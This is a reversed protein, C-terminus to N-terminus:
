RYEVLVRGLQGSACGKRSSAWLPSILVRQPLRFAMAIRWGSSAEGSQPELTSRMRSTIQRSPLSEALRSLAISSNTREPRSGTCVSIIIIGCAHSFYGSRWGEM